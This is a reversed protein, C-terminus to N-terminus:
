CTSATNPWRSVAIVTAVVQQPYPSRHLNYDDAVSDFSERRRRSEEHNSTAMPTCQVMENLRACIQFTMRQYAGSRILLPSIKVLLTCRNVITSLESKEGVRKVAPYVRRIKRMYITSEWRGM